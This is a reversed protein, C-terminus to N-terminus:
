CEPADFSEATKTTKPVPASPTVSPLYVPIQIQSKAPKDEKSLNKSRKSTYSAM